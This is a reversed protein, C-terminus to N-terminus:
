PATTATGPTFRLEAGEAQLLTGTEWRLRSLATAHGLRAEVAALLASTLNDEALIVDFLTATGLAFKAKENEVATTFLRVAAEADDLLRLGRELAAAALTVGSAVQERLAAQALREQDLLAARQVRRGAAARDAPAAQYSLQVSLNLGPIDRYLPSFMGPMGAGTTLGTYGLEVALDLGPRGSARAADFQLRAADVQLGAAALEARGALALEVLRQVAEPGASFSAARPFPEDAAPLRAAAAAGLGMLLGLGQQAAERQQEGNLRTIRKSALNAQLQILDAAPREEAAVLTRTEELLRTAREEALRHVALREQAARYGWYGAVVERTSAAAVRRIDHATADRRLEAVRVGSRTLEGGRNLGLPAVVQLSAGAQAFPVSLSQPDDVRTVSVRPRVVLGGPLERVAEVDYASTRSSLADPAVSGTADFVRSARRADSASAGLRIDYAGRAGLVAAQAADMDHRAILVSWNQRLAAAVADDLRLGPADQAQARAALVLLAGAPLARRWGRPPRKLM